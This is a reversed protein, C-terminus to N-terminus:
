SLVINLQINRDRARHHTRLYHVWRISLATPVVIVPSVSHLSIVLSLRCSCLRSSVRILLISRKSSYIVHVINKDGACTLTPVCIHRLLRCQIYSFMNSEIQSSFTRFYDLSMSKNPLLYLHMNYEIGGSIWIIQNELTNDHTLFSILKSFSEDQVLISEASVREKFFLQCVVKPIPRMDEHCSLRATIHKEWSM